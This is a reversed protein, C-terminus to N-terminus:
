SSRKKGRIGRAPVSPDCRLRVRGWRGKKRQFGLGVSRVFVKLRTKSVLKKEYKLDEESSFLRPLVRCFQDRCSWKGVREGSGDRGTVARARSACCAHSVSARGTNGRVRVVTGGSVRASRLFFLLPVAM